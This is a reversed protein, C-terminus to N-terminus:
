RAPDNVARHPVDRLEAWVTKGTTTNDAGWASSLAAVIHLGRGHEASDDLPQLMPMATADDAVCIRVQGAERLLQVQVSDPGPAHEVANSVLESVVLRAAAELADLGWACLAIRVFQRAAAPGRATAPVARTACQGVM